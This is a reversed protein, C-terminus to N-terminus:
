VTGELESDTGTEAPSATKEEASKGGHPKYLFGWLIIAAQGPIGLLFMMWLNLHLSLLMCLYVTLLIGWMIASVLTQNWHFNRWASNLVLAVISNVPVAAVFCIWGNRVGCYTLVVYCLLAVFWCLLSSLGLVVRRNVRRPQPEPERGPEQEQVPEPEAGQTGPVALLDNVTVHFLEALQTLILVDPISEAREWKSVAKDSYNLREALAAQTLGAAKRYAAINNAINQKLGDVNM